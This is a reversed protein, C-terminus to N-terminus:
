LRIYPSFFMALTGAAIALLFIKCLTKLGPRDIEYNPKDREIGHIRKAERNM